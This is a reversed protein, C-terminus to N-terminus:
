PWFGTTSGQSLHLQLYGLEPALRKVRVRRLAGELSEESWWLWGRLM